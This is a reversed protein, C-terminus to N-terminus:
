GQLVFGTEQSDPTTYMEEDAAEEGLSDEIGLLANLEHQIGAARRSIPTLSDLIQQYLIKNREITQQNQAFDVKLRTLTTEVDMLARETEDGLNNKLEGFAQNVFDRIKQGIDDDKSMTAFEERLRLCYDEKFKEVHAKGKFLESVKKGGFAGFIGAVGMIVLALPLSLTVGVATLISTFIVDSALATALGAAGSAAAGKWGATKYGLLMGGGMGYTLAGIVKALKYDKASSDDRKVTFSEQIQHLRDTLEEDFAALRSYEKGLCDTVISNIREVQIRGENEMMGRIKQHLRACLAAIKDDKLESAAIPEDGVISEAKKLLTNWYDSGVGLALTYAQDAAEQIKKLEQMKQARTKEIETMAHNHKDLFESEDMKVANLYMSITRAIEGSVSLLKNTLQDLIVVGRETTLFENLMTEFNPFNSEKLLAEDGKAKADLAQRSSVGVIRIDGLKRQFSEFAPSDEGMVARAHAVLHEEIRERINQLIRQQEDPTYNDMRTVVFIVRGVDSSLLKNELFDSEYQSLPSGAMVVFLTADVKPLISLTVQTMFENDNLGPTDIIDVNNRCYNTPYYIVAEQVSEATKKSDKDLMTVYRSLESIDIQDETGDKFFVKVLKAPSYTIRNITATTPTVDAPLIKEGLLANILTSKGRKFEGTVAVNFNDDKVRGLLKDVSEASGDLNLERAFNGLQHLDMELDSITKKYTVLSSFSAQTM